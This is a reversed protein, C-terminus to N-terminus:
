LPVRIKRQGHRVESEVNKLEMDKILKMLRINDDVVWATFHTIGLARARDALILLLHKGLGRRQFDDRVVVAVEAEKDEVTQRVFRAVGVAHEQGDEEFNTAVIAVQRQPDLDSLKEAEQWVREEPIKITYLHFRLRKTEPSLRYFMDVLLAADGKKVLRLKVTQGSRTTFDGIYSMMAIGSILIYWNPWFQLARIM